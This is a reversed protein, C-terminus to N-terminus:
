KYKKMGNTLKQIMCIIVQKSYKNQLYTKALCRRMQLKGKLDLPSKNTNKLRHCQAHQM